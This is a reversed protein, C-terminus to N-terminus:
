LCLDSPLLCMSSQLFYVAICVQYFKSKIKHIPLPRNALDLFVNYESLLCLMVASAGDNECWASINGRVFSAGYLAVVSASFM